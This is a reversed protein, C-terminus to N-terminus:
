YLLTSKCIVSKQLSETELDRAFNITLTFTKRPVSGRAPPDEDEDYFPVDFSLPQPLLKSAVLKASHDHAVSGALVKKWTETDEALELIRKRVRKITVGPTIVVEYEYFPGKPINMAFFNTRLAVERGKTGLESRLPLGKEHVPHGKLGAIVQKQSGDRLRADIVVPRNSPSYIRSYIELNDVFAPIRPSSIYGAPIGRGGGGGRGGGRGRGPPNSQSGRTSGGRGGRGRDYTGRGRM